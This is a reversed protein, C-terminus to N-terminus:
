LACSVIVLVIILTGFFLLAASQYYVKPDSKFVKMACLGPVVFYLISGAVGGTLDVVISLSNTSTLYVQLMIAVFTIVAFCALSFSIFSKNSQTHIDIKQMRLLAARMIVFDGPIYLLLHIVLAVKFVSGAPGGFNEIINTETDDGFSLYGALGTFFCMVAGICTTTLTVRNFNAISKNDMANYAHFTAYIYGLAFVIDGVTKIAGVFSGLRYHSIHNHENVVPGGILVLFITATIVGISIYSAIALHGFNRLLCLPVSFLAVPVISHFVINCYWESCEGTVQTLVTGIILIYSLLAGAGGVVIASDVLLGGWPGLISETVDSFDFIQVEEACRVLLNVGTYNMASILIFEFVTVIIGAKGFVFAQVVIGSGIMTNLLLAITSADSNKVVTHTDDDQRMIWSLPICFCLHRVEQGGINVSGRDKRIERVTPVEEVEFNGKV